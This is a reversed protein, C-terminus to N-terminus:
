RFPDGANRGARLDEGSGWLMRCYCGIVSTRGHLTAGDARVDLGGPIPLLCVRLLCGVCLVLVANIVINHM